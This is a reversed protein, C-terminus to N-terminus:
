ASLAPCTSVQRLDVAFRAGTTSSEHVLRGDCEQALRRAIHLGLGQGPSDARRRGREFLTRALRPDVGAGEDSVVIRVRQGDPRVEISVANGGGHRVANELLIHVIEAVHDRPAAVQAPMPDWRVAHGRAVLSTVLPEIVEGLDTEAPTAGDDQATLLRELRSLESDYMRSLRAVTEAPLAPGGDDRLLRHTAVLGAVTARLEHLREQERDLRARLLDVDSDGATAVPAAPGLRRLYAGVRRATDRALLATPGSGWGKSTFAHNAWVISM